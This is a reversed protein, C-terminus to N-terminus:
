MHRKRVTTNLEDKNGGILISSLYVVAGKISMREWGPQLFFDSINFM